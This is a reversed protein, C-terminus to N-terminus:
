EEDIEEIALIIQLFIEDSYYNRDYDEAIVNLVNQRIKEDNEELSNIYHILWKNATEIQQEIPAPKKRYNKKLKM